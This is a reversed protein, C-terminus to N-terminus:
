YKSQKLIFANFISQIMPVLQAEDQIRTLEMYAEYFLLMEENHTKKMYEQLVKRTDSNVLINAFIYQYENLNLKAM